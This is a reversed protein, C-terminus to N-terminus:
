AHFQLAVNQNPPRLFVKLVFISIATWAIAYSGSHQGQALNSLKRRKWIVLYAYRKKKIQINHVFQKKRKCIYSIEKIIPYFQTSIFYNDNPELRLTLFDPQMSIPM